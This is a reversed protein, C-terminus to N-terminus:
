DRVSAACTGDQEGTQRHERLESKNEKLVAILSVGHNHRHNHTGM